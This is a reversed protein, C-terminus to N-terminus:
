PRVILGAKEEDRLPPLAEGAIRADNWRLFDRLKEVYQERYHIEINNHGAGAVFWPEYKNPAANYLGRGHVQPIEQDEEGHIVFVPSLCEKVMDINKFIDFWHTKKVDRIVRLGSMIAGHLIVGRFVHKKALHCSPGSGLSQGYVYVQENPIRLTRLVYEHVAEVDSLTNSPSPKGSSLGYGTYDYCVINCRLRYALDILHDRMCGLDTANGHSFIITSNPNEVRITLVAIRHRRKTQVFDLSLAANLERESDLLRKGEEDLLWM